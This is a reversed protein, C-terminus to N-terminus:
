HERATEAPGRVGAADEVTVDEGHSAAMRWEVGTRKETVHFAVERPDVRLELDRNSFVYHRGKKKLITSM